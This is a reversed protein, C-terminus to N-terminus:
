EVRSSASGAAVTQNYQTLARTDPGVDITTISCNAPPSLHLHGPSPAGAAWAALVRIPGGHSFLVVTRDEGVGEAGGAAADTPEQDAGATGVGTAADTPEQGAGAIGAGTAADSVAAVVRRRLDTFTEGGGRRVDEGARSRRFMEPDTRAVETFTKGSWTGVDVERLRQDYIAELELLALYPAATDAVRPLDSSFVTAPRPLHEALWDAVIRAQARGVDTLGSDQQGQYRDEVNWHSEGHRVVVVRTM